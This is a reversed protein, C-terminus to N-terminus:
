RLESIASFRVVAIPRFRFNADRRAFTRKGAARESAYRERCQGVIEEERKTGPEPAEVLAGVCEQQESADPRLSAM